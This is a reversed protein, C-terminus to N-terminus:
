PTTDRRSQQISDIKGNVAEKINNSKEKVSDGVAETKEKITRGLTDLEREMSDTKVAVTNGSNTCATVSLLVFLLGFGKRM